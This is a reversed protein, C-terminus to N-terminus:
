DKYCGILDTREIDGNKCIFFSLKLLQMVQGVHELSLWDPAPHPPHGRLVGKAGLVSPLAAGSLISFIIGGFCASFAM